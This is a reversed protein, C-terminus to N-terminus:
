KEKLTHIIYDYIGRAQDDPITAAPFPPMMTPSGDRAKPMRIYALFTDFDVLQPAKALPLDPKLANGGNPHCQGCVQAFRKEAAELDPSGAPMEPARGGYVLEGGFYGIGLALLLCLFSLVRLRGVGTGSRSSVVAILLLILLASALVVKVKIPFIWAGAYNHQWDMYGLLITPLSFIFALILCHRMTLNLEQRRFLAAGIGFLFAGVVLGITIHTLPPHIPHTYGIRSLMPYIIDMPNGDKDRSTSLHKAGSVTSLPQLVWLPGSV